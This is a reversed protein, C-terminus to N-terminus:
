ICNLSFIHAIFKLKGTIVVIFLTENVKCFFSMNKHVSETNEGNIYICSEIIRLM